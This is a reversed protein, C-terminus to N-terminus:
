SLARANLVDQYTLAGEFNMTAPAISSGTGVAFLKEARRAQRRGSTLLHTRQTAGSVGSFIDQLGQRVNALGFNITGTDAFMAQWADREGQSRGIYSTWSWSTGDPSPAGVIEAQPVTTRWVWFDPVATLNYADAIVFAGDPTNPQAALVPDALIDTKLTLLQASTLSM